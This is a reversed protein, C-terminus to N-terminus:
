TCFWTGSLLELWQSQPLGLIRPTGLEKPMSFRLHYNKGQLSYMQACLVQNMVTTSVAGKTLNQQQLMYTPQVDIGFKM